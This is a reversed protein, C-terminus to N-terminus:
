RNQYTLKLAVKTQPLIKFHDAIRLGPVWVIQNKSNILIPLHLRQSRPIKKNIFLDSLKQKGPAGLPIYADGNEWSRIYLPLSTDLYVSHTDTHNGSLISAKLEANLEISEAKLFGGNQLFIRVNPSIPYPTHHFAKEKPSYSLYENQLVLFGESLSTKKLQNSIIGELVADFSKSSLTHTLGNKQLFLHLGRRWLAKPYGKLLSCNLEFPEQPSLSINLLRYLWEKLADDEEEMICRSRSLALPIKKDPITSQYAPLLYNRIKNRLYISSQNSSDERWPFGHMASILQSKPINLFPRLHVYNNPMYQVPRPASLGSTGSGKSLRMLLTESVDELQHGLLLFCTPIDRMTNYFFAYRDQRLADESNKTTEKRKASYFAIGLSRALTEVFISDAQSAERTNHNYHLISLQSKKLLPTSAAWLVLAVSDVGGSCGIAYSENTHKKFFSCVTPYIQSETISEQIRILAAEWPNMVTHHTNANPTKRLFCYYRCGDM